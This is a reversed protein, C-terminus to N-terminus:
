LTAKDFLIAGHCDKLGGRLLVIMFSGGIVFSTRDLTLVRENQPMCVSNVGSFLFCFCVIKTKSSM